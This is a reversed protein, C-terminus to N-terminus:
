DWACEVIKSGYSANLLFRLFSEESLQDMSIRPFGQFNESVVTNEKGFEKAQSAVWNRALNLKVPTECPKTRQQVFCSKPQLLIFHIAAWTEEASM